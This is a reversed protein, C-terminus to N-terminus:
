GDGRDGLLRDIPAYDDTFVIPARSDLIAEISAAAVRVAALPMPGEHDIQSRMSPGEGAVMVFVRRTETPDHGPIAWIEVSPWVARATTILSALVDLRDSHDIINMLYVGEDTLRARVLEFFERTILHQPVAIDSFADGIIVDYRTSERSLTQRADAHIIRDDGPEYWFANIATETVAADIEAVTIQVPTGLAHWGRPVSYSGGGVFFASWAARDEMRLRALGDLMMAHPTMMARADAQDAAGHVLHDLVMLRTLGGASSPTDIVRICFYNSEVTCPDPMNMAGFSLSVPVLVAVGGLGAGRLSGAAFLSQLGLAAYVAAVVVLTGTSGLWSIFVFGAALTGLIAGWAGAAFMAGLARGRRDAHFHVAIMSLIPAPIGAFFSPLFFVLGTLVIISIVPDPVATIVPGSLSRLVFIAGATTVSAALMAWGNAKLARDPM